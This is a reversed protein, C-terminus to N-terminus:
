ELCSALKKGMLDLDPQNRSSIKVVTNMEEDIKTDKKEALICEHVNKQSQQPYFFSSVTTKTGQPHYMRRVWPSLHFPVQFNLFQKFEQLTKSFDRVKSIRM